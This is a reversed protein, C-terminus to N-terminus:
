VCVLIRVGEPIHLGLYLKTGSGWPDEIQSYFYMYVSCSQKLMSVLLFSSLPFVWLSLLFFLLTVSLSISKPSTQPLCFHAFEVHHKCIRCAPALVHLVNVLACFTEFATQVYKSYSSPTHKRKLTSLSILISCKMIGM